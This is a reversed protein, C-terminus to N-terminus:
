SPNRCVNYPVWRTVAQIFGRSKLEDLVNKNAPATSLRRALPMDRVVRRLQHLRSSM